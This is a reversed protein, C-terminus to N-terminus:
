VEREAILNFVDLLFNIALFTSFMHVVIHLLEHLCTTFFQEFFLEIVGERTFGVNGVFKEWKEWM